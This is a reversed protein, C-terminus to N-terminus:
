PLQYCDHKRRTGIDDHDGCLRDHRRRRGAQFPIGRREAALFVANADAVDVAEFEAEAGM